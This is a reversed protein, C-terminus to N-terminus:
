KSFLGNLKLGVGIVPIVTTYLGTETENRQDIYYAQKNDVKAAETYKIIVTSPLFSLNAQLRLFLFISKNFHLETAISTFIGSSTRDINWTVGPSPNASATIVNINYGLMFPFKFNGAELSQNKIGIQYNEAATINGQNFIIKENPLNYVFAKVYYSEITFFFGITDNNSFPYSVFGLGSAFSPNKSSFDISENKDNRGTGNFFPMGSFFEVDNLIRQQAFCLPTLLFLVSVILKRKM